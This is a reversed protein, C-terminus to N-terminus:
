QFEPIFIYKVGVHDGPFGQPLPPFPNSNIIANLATLDLSSNGSSEVIQTGFNQGDRDIFFVITTYENSNRLNSPIMWNSTVQRKIRGAYEGLDFGHTGFLGSGPRAIAQREDDFITISDSGPQNELRAITDPIRSPALNSALTEETGSDPAPGPAKEADAAPEHPVRVLGPRDADPAGEPEPIAADRIGALDTAEGSGGAPKETKPGALSLQRVEDAPEDPLDDGMRVRVPPSSEPNDPRDWDYIYKKLTEASPAKMPRLVAVTRYKGDPDDFTFESEEPSVVLGRFRLYMGGHLLWPNEVLVVLILLHVICSAAASAMLRGSPRKKQNQKISFDFM